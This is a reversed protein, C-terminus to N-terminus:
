FCQLMACKILMLAADAAAISVNTASVAAENYSNMKLHCLAINNHCPLMLELMQLACLSRVCRLMNADYTTANCSLAVAAVM